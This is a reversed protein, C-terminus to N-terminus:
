CRQRTVPTNEAAGTVETSAKTAFSSSAAPMNARAVETGNVYVVAGDDRVLSSTARERDAPWTSLDTRFYYTTRRSPEACRPSSGRTRSASSGAGSPWTSDDFAERRGRRARTAGPPWTGGPTAGTWPRTAVSCGPWRRGAAVSRPTRPTRRVPTPAPRGAPTRPQQRADPEEAGAVTRDGNPTTPWPAGDDYTVDDCATTAGTLLQIVAGRQREPRRPVARRRLPERGYAARFAADHSVFVVYGGKPIVTGVPISDRPVAAPASVRSRGARSTSRRPPRPTTCSSTSRTAPRRAPNYQIENIVVNPSASQSTPVENASPTPPSRRAGSRCAPSWRAASAPSARAAGSTRPRPGPRRGQRHDARRVANVFGNGVLYQDHLTRLRRYYM